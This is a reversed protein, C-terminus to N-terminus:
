PFKMIELQSYRCMNQVMNIVGLFSWVLGVKVLVFVVRM